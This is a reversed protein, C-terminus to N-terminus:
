FRNDKLLRDMEEKHKTEDAIMDELQVVLETMNLKSAQEKREEYRRITDIEANRAEELMQRVDNVQKVEKPTTTPTGGLTSIKEALYLAHGQEDGIESEFFPKLVQRFIGSVTAANHNYMIIASYENALDENLGEILVELDKEM